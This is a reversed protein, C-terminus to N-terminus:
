WRTPTQRRIGCVGCAKVAVCSCTAKNARARPQEDSTPVRTQPHADHADFSAVRAVGRQPPKPPTPVDNVRAQTSANSAPPRSPITQVTNTTRLRKPDKNNDTQQMTRHTPQQRRTPTPSANAREAQKPPTERRHKRSGRRRHKDDTHALECTWRGGDRTSKPTLGDTKPRTTRCAAHSGTRHHYACARRQPGKTAELGSPSGFFVIFM